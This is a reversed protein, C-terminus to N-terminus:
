PVPPLHREFDMTVHRVRAIIIRQQDQIYFIRHKRHTVSRCGFITKFSADFQGLRILEFQDWLEGTYSVAQDRDWKKKTYPFIARLDGRASETVSLKM